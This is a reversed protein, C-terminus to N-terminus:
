KKKSATKKRCLYVIGAGLIVLVIGGVQCRNAVVTYYSIDAKGQDIKKQAGSTIGQGIVNTIPNRGFLGNAQDVKQQAGFIQENGQAVQTKIYNSLGILFVGAIFLLVGIVQKLNM